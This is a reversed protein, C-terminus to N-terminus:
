DHGIVIAKEEGLAANLALGDRGLTEADFAEATSIEIPAYGRTFPSVASFGAKALAPRADSWTQPTDPFGHLLLVLPGKGEELCSFRLGNAQVERVTASM